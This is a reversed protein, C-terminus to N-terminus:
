KLSFDWLNRGQYLDTTKLSIKGDSSLSSHLGNIKTTSTVGPASFWEISLDATVSGSFAGNGFSVTAAWDAKAAPHSQAPGFWVWGTSSGASGTCSVTGGAPIRLALNVGLNGFSVTGDGSLGSQDLSLAKNFSFTKGGLTLSGSAASTLAYTGDTRVSGSFGLNGFGTNLAGDLNLSVSPSNKLTVTINQGTPPNLGGLPIAQLKSLNLIGGSSLTGSLPIAPFGNPLNLTGSASATVSASSLAGSFSMAVDRFGFGLFQRTSGSVGFNVVGNNAINGRFGTLSGDSFISPLSLDAGV